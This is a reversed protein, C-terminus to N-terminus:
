GVTALGIARGQVPAEVRVARLDRVLGDCDPLTPTGEMDFLVADCDFFLSSM